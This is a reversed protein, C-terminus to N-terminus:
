LKSLRDAMEFIQEAAALTQNSSTKVEEAALHIDRVGEATQEIATTQQLISMEIEKASTLTEESSDLIEEFHRGSQRIDSRAAEVSKMGDETALLTTDASKQAENILIKIDKSSEGAKNALKMILEALASFRRGEKGAGEAEITANYSLITTQASLENIIERALDMQKTKKGLLLMNNIIRDVQEKVKEMGLVATDLSERGKDSATNATDAMRVVVQSTKLIQKSTATLEDFTSTIQTAAVAQESTSTLQQRAATKLEESTTKLESVAKEIPNYVSKRVIFSCIFIVALSISMILGTVWKMKSVASFAEKVTIQVILAWTLNGVSVPCYATLADKGKLNPTITSGTSGSLAASAAKTEIKMNEPDAFSAKISHHQSDLYSDSRMLFDKGLLYSEGTQGLGERNQMIKDINELSLQFAVVAIIKNNKDAVPFGAFAAPENNSPAYPTFDEVHMKNSGAVTKWLRALGSNKYPGYGLNTGLDSEERCTFMVHGHAACILFIDYFGGDEKFKLAHSGYEKFIERYEATEVDYESDHKVGSIDHYLKLKDFLLEMTETGAITKMMMFSEKFYNEVQFKRINRLVKVEKFVQDKMAKGAISISIAGMITLPIIGAGIFLLLIRTKLKMKKFM